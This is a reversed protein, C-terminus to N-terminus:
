KQRNFDLQKKLSKTLKELCDFRDKEYKDLSEALSKVGQTNAFICGEYFSQSIIYELYTESIEIKKM